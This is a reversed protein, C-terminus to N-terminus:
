KGVTAPVPRKSRSRKKRATEGRLEELTVKETGERIRRRVLAMDERDEIKELLALDEVDILAAVPRGHQTVLVRDGSYRLADIVSSLNERLNSTSMEIADFGAKSM